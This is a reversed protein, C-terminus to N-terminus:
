SHSVLLQPCALGLCAAWVQNKPRVMKTNISMCKPWKARQTLKRRIPQGRVFLHDLCSTSLAETRVALAAHRLHGFLPYGRQSMMSIWSYFFFSHSAQAKTECPTNTCVSIDSNLAIAM